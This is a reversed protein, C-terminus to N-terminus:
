YFFDLIAEEIESKDLAKNHYHYGSRVFPKDRDSTKDAIFDLDIDEISPVADEDDLILDMYELINIKLEPPEGFEAKVEGYFTLDKILEDRLSSLYSNKELESIAYFSKRLFHEEDDSLQVKDKLAPIDIGEENKVREKFVDSLTNLINIMEKRYGHELTTYFDVDEFDGTLVSILYEPSTGRDLRLLKTLNNKNIIETLIVSSEDFVNDPNIDSTIDKLRKRLSLKKPLPLKYFMPHTSINENTIEYKEFIKKLNEDSFDAVSFDTMEQYSSDYSSFLQENTSPVVHTYLEYIYPEYEKKPMSNHPGKLQTLQSDPRGMNYIAGTVHSKNITLKPYGSVPSYSRLSILTERYGAAGCHGMRESEERSSNTNLNVWYFGLENADRFDILIDGNEIYSIEGDGASLSDHWDEAITVIEDFSMKKIKKFNESSINTVRLYDRITIFDDRYGEYLSRDKFDTISKEKSDECVKNLLFLTLKGLDRYIIGAMEPSLGLDILIKEQKGVQQALKLINKDGTINYLDILYRIM